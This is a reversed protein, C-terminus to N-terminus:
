EGTTADMVGTLVKTSDVACQFRIERTASVAYEVEVTNGPRVPHFFKASKITCSGPRMGLGTEVLHVAEALLLAGPIIPNGPFHGAGAPHEPSFHLVGRNM